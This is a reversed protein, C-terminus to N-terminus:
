QLADDFSAAVFAIEDGVEKAAGARGGGDGLLQPALPDGGVEALERM